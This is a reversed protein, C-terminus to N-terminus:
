QRTLQLVVKEHDPIAAQMIKSGKNWKCIIPDEWVDGTDINIRGDKMLNYSSLFNLPPNHDPLRVMVTTDAYFHLSANGDGQKWDGTIAQRMSHPMEPEQDCAAFLLMPLLFLAM